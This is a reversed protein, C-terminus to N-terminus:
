FHSTTNLDAIIQRAVQVMDASFPYCRAVWDADQYRPERLSQWLGAATDRNGLTYETIALSAILPEFAPAITSGKRFCDLAAELNGQRYLACGM